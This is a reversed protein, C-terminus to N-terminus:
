SSKELIGSGLQFDDIFLEFSLTGFNADVPPLALGTVCHMSPM